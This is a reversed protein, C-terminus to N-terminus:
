HHGHDVGMATVVEHLLITLAIGALASLWYWGREQKNVEPILDTAAVYIIVGASIAFAM